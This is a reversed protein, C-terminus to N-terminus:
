KLGRGLKNLEEKIEDIRALRAEHQTQGEWSV